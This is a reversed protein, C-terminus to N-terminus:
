CDKRYTVIHHSETFCYFSNLSFETDVRDRPITTQYVKARGAAPTRLRGAKSRLAPVTCDSSLTRHSIFAICQCQSIVWM